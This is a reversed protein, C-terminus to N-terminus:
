CEGLITHYGGGQCKAWVPVDTRYGMKCCIARYNYSVGYFCAHILFARKNMIRKTRSKWLTQECNESLAIKASHECNQKLAKWHIFELSFGDNEQQSPPPNLPLLVIFLCKTFLNSTRLSLTKRYSRQLYRAIHFTDSSPRKSRSRGQDKLKETMGTRVWSWLGRKKWLHGLVALFEM